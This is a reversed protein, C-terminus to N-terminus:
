GDPDANFIILGYCFIQSKLRVESCYVHLRSTSLITSLYLSIVNVYDLGVYGKITCKRGKMESEM